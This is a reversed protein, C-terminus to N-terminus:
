VNRVFVAHGTVVAALAGATYAGASLETLPSQAAAGTFVAVRGNAITTGPCYNYVFGSPSTGAPPNEGFEVWIPIQDSKIQDFGAFTLIDGHATYSGTLVVSFYVDMYRGTFDPVQITSATIAMAM